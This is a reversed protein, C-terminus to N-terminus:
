ETEAISEDGNWAEPRETAIGRISSGAHLDSAHGGKRKDEEEECGAETRVDV